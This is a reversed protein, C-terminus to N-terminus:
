RRMLVKKGKGGPTFVHTVEHSQDVAGHLQAFRKWPRIGHQPAGDAQQDGAGVTAEAERRLADLALEGISHRGVGDGDVSGIRIRLVVLEGLAEEAQDEPRAAFIRAAQKGRGFGREGFGLFHRQSARGFM